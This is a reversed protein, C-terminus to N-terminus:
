TSQFIHNQNETDLSVSPYLTETRQDVQIVSDPLLLASANSTKKAAGKQTTIQCLGKLM